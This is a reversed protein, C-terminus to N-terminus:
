SSWERSSAQISWTDGAAFGSFEGGGRLGPHGLGFDRPGSM